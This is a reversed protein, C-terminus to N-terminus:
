HRCVVVAVPKDLYEYVKHKDHVTNIGKTM